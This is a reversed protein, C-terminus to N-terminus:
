KGMALNTKKEKDTTEIGERQKKCLCLQLSVLVTGGLQWIRRLQLDGGIELVTTTYNTTVVM